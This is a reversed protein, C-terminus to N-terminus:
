SRKQKAQIARMAPSENFDIWGSARGAAYGGDIPIDAGNLWETHSTLLMNLVQAVQDPTAMGGVKEIQWDSHDAGMLEKFLPHLPTDIAAPSVCNIRVGTQQFTQARAATWASLCRKSFSYPDRSLVAAHERCWSAGAEFTDTALLPALRDKRTQWDWGATSSVSVVTSSKQLRPTLLETLYRPGLFNVRLVLEPEKARAIGAVNALGHFTHPIRDLASEIAQPNSLDIELFECGAAPEAPPQLDLNFVTHGAQTLQNVLAAGVGSSGGTVVFDM